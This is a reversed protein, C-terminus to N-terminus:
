TPVAFVAFEISTKRGEFIVEVRRQDPLQEPNTILTDRLRMGVRQSVKIAQWAPSNTNIRYYLWGNRAPLPRPIQEAPKLELGPLGLRFIRDVDEANGLKWDLHSDGTLLRHCTEEAMDGRLVGVYCEWDPQLWKQDLTTTLTAHGTGLFYRQEYELSTVQNLMQEIHHMISRFIGALDDHDYPLIEVLRRDPEFIALSGVVRCLETYAQRPHIGPAFAIVRLVAQAELLKALMFLRDVDGPESSSFGVQRLTAQEALVEIKRGILDYITQVVDQHLPSWADISLVSPFFDGALEPPTERSALGRIQAMPLLEYGSLDDTSLLVRVNLRRFEIEQENTGSTDDTVDRRTLSARSRGDDGPPSVNPELPTHRPIALYARIEEGPDQLEALSATIGRLQGEAHSLDLRDPEDGEGFSVLTGDRFRARCTRIVLQRNALASRDIELRSFGYSCRDSVDASVALQEHWHRESAQFHHPRLFMGESWHIPMHRM